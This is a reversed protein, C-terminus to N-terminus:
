EEIQLPLQVSIVSGQGPTSEITASGDIAAAREHIGLLGIGWHKNVIRRAPDFGCGDDTVTLLLRATDVNLTVRVNDPAAHKSINHLSEQAIRYCILEVESPLRMQLEPQEIRIQIEPHQLSFQNILWELTRTLGLDDLMSPRLDDCINRLSSGMQNGMELLRACHFDLTQNATDLKRIMEVGMKFATVMQGFDDHLEQALRKKEIESTKILQQSLYRVSEESQQLCEEAQKRAHINTNTGVARLPTGDPTREIVRGRLLVWLWERTESRCKLRLEIELDSLRDDLHDNVQDEFRNLDEPHILNILSTFDPDLDDPHYGLMTACQPSFYVSNDQINWDWLGDNVAQLALILRDESEALQNIAMERQRNNHTLPRYHFWYFTPSLILVLITADIVAESLVPLSPWLHLIWMVVIEGIFISFIMLILIRLPPLPEIATLSWPLNGLSVQFDQKEQRRDRNMDYDIATQLLRNSM